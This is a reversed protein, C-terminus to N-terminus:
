SIFWFAQSRPQFSHYLWSSSAFSHQTGVLISLLGGLVGGILRNSRSRTLKKNKAM